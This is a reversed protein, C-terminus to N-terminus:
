RTEDLAPLLLEISHELQQRAEGVFEDYRGVDLSQSLIQRGEDNEHMTLLIRKIKSRLMPDIGARLTLVSRVVPESMMIFRLKARVLPPTVEPDVWDLNSIAGADVVGAVVWESIRKEGNTFVYGVKGAAPLDNWSDLEEAVLGHRELIALPLRFASTSGEDEFAIRRGRLDQLRRIESDARVVFMTSYTPVSGRWERLFVEAGGLEHFLLATFLTDPIMDVRGQRLLRLLEANDATVVAVGRRIATGELRRVVYDIVRQLRPQLKAPNKGTRAIVLTESRLPGDLGPYAAAHETGSRAPTALLLLCLFLLSQAVARANM